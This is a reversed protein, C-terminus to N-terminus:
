VILYISLGEYLGMMTYYSRNEQANDRYQGLEWM